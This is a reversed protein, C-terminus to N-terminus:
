TTRVQPQISFGQQKQMRQMQEEKDGSHVSHAKSVGDYQSASSLTPPSVGGKTVPTARIKEDGGKKTKHREYGVGGSESDKHTRRDCKTTPSSVSSTSDPTKTSKFWAAKLAGDVDRPDVRDRLNMGQPTCLKMLTTTTRAENQPRAGGAGVRTAAAAATAATRILLSMLKIM